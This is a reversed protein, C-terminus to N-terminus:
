LLIKLLERFPHIQLNPFADLLRRSSLQSNIPRRAAREIVSESPQLHESSLELYEAMEKALAHATYGKSSSVQFIGSVEKATILAEVVRAIDQIWTPHRIIINDLLGQKQQSIQEKLQALFGVLSGTADRGVLVPMRLVIHRPDALVLLESERKQKGYENIPNTRDLEAYPAQEGDFVYDTSIYLMRTRAPLAALLSATASVNLRYSEERNKECFDPERYAATHILWHAPVETMLQAVQLPERLDIALTKEGAQGRHSLGLLDHGKNTLYRLIESGLFGSAGSLMIHQRKDM